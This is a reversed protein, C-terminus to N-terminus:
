RGDNGYRDCGVRGNVVVGKVVMPGATNAYGKARDAIQTDWITKGTRADLAVLRAATTAVFVKDQYIAMNRMAAGGTMLNPGVRNEGILDGRGADRARVAT